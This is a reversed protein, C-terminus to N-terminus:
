RRRPQGDTYRNVIEFMDDAIAKDAALELILADGMTPTFASTGPPHDSRLFQEIQDRRRGTLWLFDGVTLGTRNLLATFDQPSLRQYSFKNGSM